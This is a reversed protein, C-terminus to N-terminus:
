YGENEREFCLLARGRSGGTEQTVAEPSSYREGKEGRQLQGLVPPSRTTGVGSRGPAQMRPGHLWGEKALPEARTTKIELPHLRGTNAM